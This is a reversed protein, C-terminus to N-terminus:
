DYWGEDDNEEETLAINIANRIALLQAKSKIRMTTGKLFATNGNVALRQAITYGLEYGNKTSKSIVLQVSDGMDACSLEEHIVKNKQREDTNM